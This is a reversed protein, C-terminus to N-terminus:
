WDQMVLETEPLGAVEWAERGGRYWYVNTYGLAVLRLALNRGQYRESNWGMAVLPVNRDGSTLQQIKCGLQTQFEDSTNGGVGAGWLGIAGPISRGGRTADLVLVQRQVVLRAVELTRITQAGPVTTPTPAEYRSHLVGDPVLGTIADEEAHDRIGALRLGDRLGQMQMAHTPNSTYPRYYARATITPWLRIAECANLRAEETQGALAQAAAIAAHTSGREHPSSAPHAALSRQLWAVAEEYEGLFILALGIHSYRNYVHPNRPNLRLSQKYEAIADAARGMHELYLGLWLHPGTLNPYANIARQAAASVQAFRWQKGLLFVRVWMVKMDDPRLMEARVVLDEARRLKAPATADETWVPISDLLSEALGTLAITSSSDLELAREYLSVIETSSRPDPPMNRLARARLLLDVVDPNAPRERVSRASESDVIRADLTWALPRVIDDLNYHGDDKLHFRDAWLQTGTETSVLQVNVRLADAVKRVSGKVAFRVSLEDGIRRIDLPQGKYTFASSRDIVLFGPFWSIETTLDESIEDVIHDPVEDGALNAFPLVVLSCRPATTPDLGPSRVERAEGRQSLEAASPTSRLVFGEIPRTINKLALAGIPEFALHGQGAKTSV